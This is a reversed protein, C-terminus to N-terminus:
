NLHLFDVPKNIGHSGALGIPEVEYVSLLTNNSIYFDCSVDNM